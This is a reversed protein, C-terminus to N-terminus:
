TRHTSDNNAKRRLMEQMLRAEYEKQKLIESYNQLPRDYIGYMERVRQPRTIFYELVGACFVAKVPHM